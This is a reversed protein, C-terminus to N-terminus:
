YISRITHKHAVTSIFEEVRNVTRRPEKHYNVTLTPVGFTETLRAKRRNKELAKELIDVAENEPLSPLNKPGKKNGEKMRGLLSTRLTHADTDVHVLGLLSQSLEKITNADNEVAGLLGEDLVPLHEVRAEEAQLLWFFHKFFANSKISDRICM